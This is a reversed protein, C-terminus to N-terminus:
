PKVRTTVIHVNGQSERLISRTDTDQHITEAIKADQRYSHGCGARQGGKAPFCKRFIGSENMGVHRLM